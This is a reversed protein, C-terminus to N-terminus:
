IPPGTTANAPTARIRDSASLMPPPLAQLHLRAVTAALPRLRWILPM